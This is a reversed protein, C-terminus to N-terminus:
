SSVAEKLENYAYMLVESEDRYPNNKREEKTNEFTRSATRSLSGDNNELTM